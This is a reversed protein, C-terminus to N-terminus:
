GLQSRRPPSRGADSRVDWFRAPQGDIRLLKEGGLFSFVLVTRTADSDNLLAEAVKPDLTVSWDAVKAVFEGPSGVEM